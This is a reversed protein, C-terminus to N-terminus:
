PRWTLEALTVGTLGTRQQLVVKVATGSHSQNFWDNGVPEFVELVDEPGLLGDHDYDLFRISSPARFVRASSPGTFVLVDMDLPMYTPGAADDYRITFLYDKWVTPVIIRLNVDYLRALERWKERGIRTIYTHSIVLVNLSM